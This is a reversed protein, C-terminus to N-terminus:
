TVRSQHYSLCVKRRSSCFIIVQTGIPLSSYLDCIAGFKWGEKKKGAKFFQKIGEPIMAGPKVLVRIPDTMFKATIELVNDPITASLLVVQTTPPLYHYIESITDKFREDLLNDAEDLVLIKINQTRWKCKPRKVLDLVRGLTGSVVHQGSEVKKIDERISTGGVCACCQVDIQAGLALVVSQIQTALQRTPSLVLAQTERVTVDILQLIGISYAATKGTRPPAQAIVNRGQIIPSIVRQQIAFPEKLDLAFGKSLQPIPFAPDEVWQM